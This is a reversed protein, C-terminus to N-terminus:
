TSHRVTDLIHFLSMGVIVTTKTTDNRVPRTMKDYYRMLKRKIRYEGSYKDLDDDEEVLIKKNAKIRRDMKPRKGYGAGGDDLAAAM